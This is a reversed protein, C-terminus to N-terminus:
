SRKHVAEIFNELLIAIEGQKAPSLSEYDRLAELLWASKLRRKDIRKRNFAAIVDDTSIGLVRAFGEIKDKTPNSEQGRRYKGILSHDFNFRDGLAKTSSLGLSKKRAEILEDIFPNPTSVKVEGSVIGEETYLTNKEAHFLNRSLAFERRKTNPKVSPIYEM